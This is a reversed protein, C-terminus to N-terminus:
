GSQSRRTAVGWTAFIACAAAMDAVPGELDFAGFVLGLAAGVALIATALRVTETV